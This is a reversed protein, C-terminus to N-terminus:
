SLNIAGEVVDFRRKIDRFSIPQRMASAKKVGVLKAYLQEVEQESMGDIHRFLALKKEALTM